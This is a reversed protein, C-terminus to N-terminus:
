RSFPVALPQYRADDYSTDTSRYGVKLKSVECVKVKRTLLGRARTGGIWKWSIERGEVIRWM